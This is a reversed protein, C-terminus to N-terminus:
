GLEWRGEAENYVYASPIGLDARVPFAWKKVSSLTTTVKSLFGESCDGDAGTRRSGGHSRHSSRDSSRASTRRSVASMMASGDEELEAEVEEAESTSSSDDQGEFESGGSEGSSTDNTHYTIQRGVLSSGHQDEAQNASSAACVDSVAPSRSGVVGSFVSPSASSLRPEVSGGSLISGVSHQPPTVGVSKPPTRSAAINSHRRLLTLCSYHRRAAAMEAASVGEDNLVNGEAGCLLLLHLCDLQGMSAAEHIATIGGECAPSMDTGADLLVKVVSAYGYRCAFILPTAGTEDCRNADASRQLLFTVSQTAGGACAYHLPTRGRSDAVDIRGEVQAYLQLFFINGDLSAQFINTTHRPDKWLSIMLLENRWFTPQSPQSEDPIEEWEGLLDALEAPQQWQSVQRTENHFFLRGEPTAVVIWGQWRRQVEEEDDERDSHEPSNPIEASAVQCVNADEAGRAGDDELSGFQPLPQDSERGPGDASSCVLSDPSLIVDGTTRAAAPIPLKRDGGQPTSPLGADKQAQAALLEETLKPATTTSAPAQKSSADESGKREGASASTAPSEAVASSTGPVATSSSSPIFPVSRGPASLDGRESGVHGTGSGTGKRFDVPAFASGSSSSAQTAGLLNYRSVLPSTGQPLSRGVLPLPDLGHCLRPSQTPSLPPTGARSGARSGFMSNLGDETCGLSETDWESSALSALDGCESSAVSSPVQIRRNLRSLLDAVNREVDAQRNKFREFSQEIEEYQKQEATTLGSARASHQRASTPSNNGNEGGGPDVGVETDWPNPSEVADAVEADSEDDADLSFVQPGGSGSSVQSTKVTVASPTANSVKAIPLKSATAAVVPRATQASAAQQATLRVVAAKAAAAARSALVSPRAASASATLPVSEVAKSEM